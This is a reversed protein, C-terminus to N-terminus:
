DEASQQEIGYPDDGETRTIVKDDPEHLLMAIRLGVRRRGLGHASGFPDGPVHLEVAMGCFRYLDALVRRGADSGLFVARYDTKRGLLAATRAALGM